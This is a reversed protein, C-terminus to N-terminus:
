PISNIESDIFKQIKTKVGSEVTRLRLLPLGGKKLISNKQEDRVKQEPKDHDGGDVEIVAIPKKGVEFYIVFDCRSRNVMFSKERDTLSEIDMSVLQHLAIERGFTLGKYVELELCERLSQAVIQESLFKSDSPRLRSKLKELSKDYEKYLLDFASIVPSKHIQTTTDAYYEIYRILAAIPGNRSNFVEEGTVLTFRQKARSVAVNIIHPNDVFSLSRKNSIKKDLVTSFIIEDCERGQFKHTTDKAFDEPLFKESLNVQARYPAIFGRNSDEDWHIDDQQDLIKLVSDIERQNETKRAHNGKATVILQLAEEDSDETMPILENDYFQQNCFQIIRPHCRYHEKLLTIPASDGFVRICSDLISHKECDYKEDPATLGTKSNIAPLQKRDGVIIINRACGLALVGPVIGQQSAEDIIAYDLLTGAGLSNVISHTSSGIIPFRKLFKDIHRRYDKSNFTDEPWMKTQLQNKLYRMSSTTIESLLTKFDGKNLIEKYSALAEEKEQLAQDYYSKQLSYTMANQKDPTNIPRTRLIRFNFFLEVRNKLTIPKEDIMTLYALFDMHKQKPLRYKHLQNAKLTNQSETLWQSFHKLEINLEVIEIQLKAAENQAQLLKKLQEIQAEIQKLTPSPETRESPIDLQNSFFNERNTSNGLKAILYDLNEKNLKEYVNEVAANNNSLIAVTKNRLLINAIINLITQTKGTGPPGEIISVQSSLARTVATLQSENTGFPFIFSLDDKRQECLGKCYANLATESSSSLKALQRIVNDEIAEKSDKLKKRSHAINVFYQFLDGDKMDSKEVFQIKNMEIVYSTKNEEYQVVAYKNGYITAQFIENFTSTGNRVLLKDKINEIPSVECENLPRSFSKGSPFHCILKFGQGSPKIEWDKIQKTKDQGNVHISVMQKEDM